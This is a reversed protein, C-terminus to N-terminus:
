KLESITFALKTDKSKLDIVEGADGGKNIFGKNDAGEHWVFIRVKGSDPVNAIKFEGKANTVAALPHPLAWAYGEMWGHIDCGIQIPGKTIDSPHIGKAAATLNLGKEPKEKTSRDVVQSVKAGAGPTPFILKTNHKIETPNVAYFKQTTPVYNVEGEETKPKTAEIYAPFLVVIRPEFHCHPQDLVVIEDFDKKKLALEKADFFQTEKEPMIWVVVNQVNRNKDVLWTTQEYAEKCANKDKSKEIKRKLEAKLEDIPPKVGEKLTVTGTIIGSGVAVPKMDEDGGGGKDEKKGDGEKKGEGGGKKKDGSCGLLAV